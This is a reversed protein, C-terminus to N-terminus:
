FFHGRLYIEFGVSKSTVSFVFPWIAFDCAEMGFSCYIFLM